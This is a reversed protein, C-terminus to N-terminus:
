RRTVRIFGSCPIVNLQGSKELEDLIFNLGLSDSAIHGAIIVNMGEDKAYKFHEESLHMAVITGVGAQSLRAFVKKSGETGGTMDVFIRGAPKGPEGILIRPGSNKKMGDAYEPIAKLIGLVNSLKKPRKKDFMTQLYWYVQNDAPTHICMYPIDLLRAIDVSRSHNAPSVAREVECIREAILKKAVDANLGMKKLMTEQLRMVDYFRAWALGEPHHAIVLDIGEGRAILREAALIEPAEADIGVMVSRVERDPDGYLIRTDAYPNTLIEKDFAKKDAGKLKRYNKRSVALDADIERASRPDRAIGKKVAIRYIDCIKM